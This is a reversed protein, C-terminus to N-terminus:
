PSEAGVVFLQFLSSFPQYGNVYTYSIDHYSRMDPPAGCQIVMSHGPLTREQIRRARPGRGLRRAHRAGPPGSPPSIGWSRHFIHSFM